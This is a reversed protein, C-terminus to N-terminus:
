RCGTKAPKGTLAKKNKWGNKLPMSVHPTQTLISLAPLSGTQKLM